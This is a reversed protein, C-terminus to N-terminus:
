LEDPFRGTPLRVFAVGSEGKQAQAIANKALITFVEHMNRSGPLPQIKDPNQLTVLSNQYSIIYNSIRDEGVAGAHRYGQMHDMDWSRRFGSMTRADYEAVTIQGNNLFITIYDKWGGDNYSMSEATFYGDALGVGEEACSSLFALCLLLAPLLAPLGTGRSLRPRGPARGSPGAKKKSITTM